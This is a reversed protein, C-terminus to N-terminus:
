APRAVKTQDTRPRPEPGYFDGRRTMPRPNVLISTLRDRLAKPSTPKALVEHVGARMAEKVFSQSAHSTLMIIPVHPCPFMGPTRVARAVDLGNYGPLDADLLVVDPNRTRLVDLTAIGNDTEIVSLAGLATLMNRSLRRMYANGDAVLVDLGHLLAEASNKRM